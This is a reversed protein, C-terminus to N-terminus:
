GNLAAKLDAILDDASEIGAAFRLLGQNRRSDRDGHVLQSHVDLSAHTAMIKEGSWVAQQGFWVIVM